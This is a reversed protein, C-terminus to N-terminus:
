FDCTGEGGDHISAMKFREINERHEISLRDFQENYIDPHSQIFKELADRLYNPADADLCAESALSLIIESSEVPYENSLIKLLNIYIYGDYLQDFEKTHFVSVFQGFTKPFVNLYDQKREESYPDDYVALASNHIQLSDSSLTELDTEQLRQHLTKKVSEGNEFTFFEGDYPNASSTFSLALAIVTFIKRM